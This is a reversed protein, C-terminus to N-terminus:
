LTPALGLTKGNVTLRGEALRLNSALHGDRDSIWGDATWRAIREQPSEPAQPDARAIWDLAVSRPLALAGDANLPGLGAGTATKLDLSLRASVPGDASLARFPALAIQPGSAILRPLLRAMLTTAILRRTAPPATGTALARGAAILEALASANLSRAALGIRADRYSPGGLALTGAELTLALDLLTGRPTQDLQLALGEIATRVPAALWVSDIELRASGTYLVGIWGRLEANLRVGDLRALVRGERSGAPAILALEPLDLALALRRGEPTYRLTGSGEGSRVRTAGDADPLHLRALASGDLALDTDIGVAPLPLPADAWEVRTHVRALVPHPLTALWLLPGQEIRSDLRLRSVQAPRGDPSPLPQLVLEASASSAFWGREYQQAVASGPALSDLVADLAQGYAQRVATGLALPGALAVLGLALGLAALAFGTRRAAGAM